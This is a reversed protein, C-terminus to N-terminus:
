PNLYRSINEHQGCLYVIHSLHKYIENHWMFRTEDELYYLNTHIYFMQEVNTVCIVLISIKVNNPKIPYQSTFAFLFLCSMHSLSIKHDFWIHLLGKLPLLRFIPGDNAMHIIICANDRRRKEIVIDLLCYSICANISGHKLLLLVLLHLYWWCRLYMLMDKDYAFCKLHSWTCWSLRMFGWLSTLVITPCVWSISNNIILLIKKLFKVTRKNKEM